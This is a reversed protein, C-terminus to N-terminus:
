IYKSHILPGKPANATPQIILYWFLFSILITPQVLFSEFLGGLLISIIIATIYFKKKQLLMKVLFIGFFVFGFIGSAAFIELYSSHFYLFNLRQFYYNSSLNEELITSNLGFIGEGSFISRQSYFDLIYYWIASRGTTFEIFIDNLLMEKSFYVVGFTVILTSFLYIYKLSVKKLYPFLNLLLYMGLIFESNRSNALVVLIAFVIFFLLHTRRNKIGSYRLVSFNIIAGVCSFIGFQIYSDYFLGLGTRDELTFWLDFSFLIAIVSWFIFNINIAKAAYKFFALNPTRHKAQFALSLHFLFYVFVFFLLNYQILDINFGKEITRLVTFLICFAWFVLLWRYERLFYKFQNVSKHMIIIGVVAVALKGWKGIFLIADSSSM